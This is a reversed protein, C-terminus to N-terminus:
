LSDYWANVEETMETGGFAYFQNVFDEFADLPLEGVIIKTFTEQELKDLYGKYTTMSETPAGVFKNFTVIDNGGAERFVDIGSFMAEWLMTIGWYQDKWTAPVGSWDDTEYAHKFREFRRTEQNPRSHLYFGYQTRMIPMFRESFSQMDTNGPGEALYGRIAKPIDDGTKGEAKAAEIEDSNIAPKEVEYEYLMQDGFLEYLDAQDRFSSQIQWNLIIFMAEPHECKASIAWNTNGTSMYERAHQKGGDVTLYPGGMVKVSNDVEWAARPNFQYYTSYWNGEYLLANNGSVSEGAKEMSKTYFEPDLYGKEYFRRLAALGEKVEPLTSGYVLKGDDGEIWIRPHADYPDMLLRFGSYLGQDMVLGVGNPFAEHYASLVDELEDVTTPIEKGLGSLIDVRYQPYDPMAGGGSEPLGYIKGEYTVPAFFLGGTADVWENIIYKTLPSCWEEILDDLPMLVGSAAMQNIMDKTAKTVLDPLDNAALALNYQQQLDADNSTVFMGKYQVGTKDLVWRTYPNDGDPPNGEWWDATSDLQRFGSSITIPPDFKKYYIEDTEKPNSAYAPLAMAMVLLLALTLVLKRKM